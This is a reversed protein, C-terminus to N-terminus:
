TRMQGDDTERYAEAAAGLNQAARLIADARAAFASEWAAGWDAGAAMAGPHGAADAITSSAARLAGGSGGLAAAIAAQHGQGAALEDTNVHIRPM